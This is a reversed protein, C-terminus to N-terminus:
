RKLELQELQKLRREHRGGVIKTDIFTQVIDTVPCPYTVRGGLAIFNAHNHAKAMETTYLDHVLACRIGAVKNAAISVGIGTGCVLVGFDYQKSKLFEKCAREGINPYDVSAESDVGLNVVAHGKAVLYATLERKLFLGGHDNAILIKM